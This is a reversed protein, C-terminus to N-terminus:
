VLKNSFICYNNPLEAPIIKEKFAQLPHVPWLEVLFLGIVSLIM